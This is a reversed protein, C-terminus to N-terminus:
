QVISIIVDKLQANSKEHPIVDLYEGSNSILVPTEILYGEDEIAKIDFDLLKQGASVTDGQSIYSVFHKGELKVTDLGVHILVEVGTNSVLGIAHKTPFLAVVTGDFPAYVSGDTPRILVGKGLAGESFAADQALELAVVDGKIPSNVTMSEVSHTVEEVSKDTWFFYTLVFGIIASIVAVGMSIYMGNVNGTSPDIFNLFGFIGLGGIVFGKVNFFGMLGGGVAGGIMSYIFPTKKPLSLGYIAPETVGFLGSIVSPIVLQKEKDSKLKFYMAAVAATQAFSAGFTGALVTEFGFTQLNMIAIPILGWHLGFIVLLQWIFGTFAGAIVPSFANLAMFAEGVLVSAMTILPGIALFGVPLAIILVILPVIFSQIMEPVIKYAVKQIRSAFWTVGIVPVVSSLYNQALLPIGFVKVFVPTEFITGAFVTQIPDSTFASAQLAPYCLAAGIAMGTFPNLKFKKATTYGLIIPMYQFLADGIGNFLIYTGSDMTTWGFAVAAAMMGKLMGSAAMIGLFPQFAGSVIDIIINLAGKPGQSDDSDETLGIISNIESFVNPVHNGIVVQYQGGAKMVTVVGDNAKLVEDNAKSEDKLRFRLRTVCHALSSINEKGGVNEIITNALETYKGM